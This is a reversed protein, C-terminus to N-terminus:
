EAAARALAPRDPAYHRAGAHIMEGLGNQYLWLSNQQGRFSPEGAMPGWPRFNSGLGIGFVNPLAHGGATLLRSDPGVAPGSPVLPVARHSADLVPLTMMRYGFAPVILDAADLLRRLGSRSMARMPQMAARVEPEAGGVGRIRRYTARGDGRLGSLRFVRGTAPCVDEERFSYNEEAAAARSPFFVRPESRYLIRIGAIGFRIGPLCNLLFWASSFASHAGGLIVARPRGRAHSLLRRTLFAGGQRLLADSPMVKARWPELTMGPMLESWCATQWGGLAMIATAAQISRRGGGAEAIEVAVTGDSLLHLAIARAGTMVRSGPHHVFQAALAAGLRELFQGVLELPPLGDRWGALNETIPDSRLEVLSSDCSPGDLCELFTGGLTDANLTFRGVTGGLKQRREIVAVGADLWEGLLGHRAAWVLSGTGAPGGGLIVTQYM